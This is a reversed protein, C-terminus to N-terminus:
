YEYPPDYFDAPDPDEIDVTIPLGAAQLEAAGELILDCFFCSFNSATMTVVPYGGSISGDRDYDVEWDVEHSGSLLGKRGCAPCDVLVREYKDVPYSAEISKAVVEM